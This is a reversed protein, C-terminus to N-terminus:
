LDEKVPKIGATDVATSASPTSGRVKRIDAPHAEIQAMDSPCTRGPVIRSGRNKLGGYKGKIYAQQSLEKKCSVTYGDM